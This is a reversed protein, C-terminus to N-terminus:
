TKSEWTVGPPAEYEPQLRRPEGPREVEWRGGWSPAWSEPLHRSLREVVADMGPRGILNTLEHPDALRDYLEETGDLYRIYRYHEDRISANGKGYISLSPRDWEAGPENLLPAFSRGDLAHDVPGLRCLERLTPYLDVLGVTRESIAPAVGPARVLLPVYDSLEWLTAKEWRMKEGCHYGNDSFVIVITNDAHPSRNIAEIVRGVNWDAFSSNACYGWLYKRWLNEDIEGDVRAKKLGDTLLRGQEPVDDLDDSKWGDPLPLTDPDYLDFFRSPATYPQHPRWLGYFLFFPRDHAEEIFEIAADANVVDPFDSDPGQWRQVGPAIIPHSVDPHPGFGGKAIPRNDFMAEERGEQLPSHFIKGRGWTTYGNAKFYEPISQAHELVSGPKNWIDAGNLYAGTHHANMGSLFSARSPNCVPVGCAANVFNVSEEKLRDLHPMRIAPYQGRSGYGNMDDYVIIVVNPRPDEVADSSYPLGGVFSVILVLPLSPLKM